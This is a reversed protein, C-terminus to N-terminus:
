AKKADVPKTGIGIALDDTVGLCKAISILSLCALHGARAGESIRSSDTQIHPNGTRPFIWDLVNKM